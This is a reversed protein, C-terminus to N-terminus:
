FFFICIMELLLQLIKFIKASTRNNVVIKSRDIITICNEKNAEVVDMLLSTTIFATTRDPVETPDCLLAVNCLNLSNGLVVESGEIQFDCVDSEENPTPRDAGDYEDPPLVASASTESHKAQQKGLKRKRQMKKKIKM